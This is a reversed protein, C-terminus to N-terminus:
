PTVTGCNQGSKNLGPRLVRDQDTPQRQHRHVRPHAAPAHLWSITREVVWRVRGLKSKNEIGRRAIRVQDRPQAPLRRLPPLRLGQGRAAQRTPAPGAPADACRPTPRWCRSSCSSTTPARRPSCPTCRLGNADCLIHYKSGAKGKDTPNARASATSGAFCSGCGQPPTGSLSGSSRSAQPTWSPFRTTKRAWDIGAVVQDATMPLLRNERLLEITPM